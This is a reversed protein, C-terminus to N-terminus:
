YPKEISEVPWSSGAADQLKQALRDSITFPIQVDHGLVFRVRKIWVFKRRSVSIDRWPIFLPPHGLRFLVFVGLFLGRPDAGVMLCNNYAIFWRFEGRQMRWCSGLFPEQCRYHEALSAWGGIHSLLVCVFSWLGVFAIVFLLISYYTNMM